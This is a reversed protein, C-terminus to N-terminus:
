EAPVSIYVNDLELVAASYLDTAVLKGLNEASTLATSKIATVTGDAKKTITGSVTKAELDLDLEVTFWEGVSGSLKTSVASDHAAAENLAYFVGANGRGYISFIINGNSDTVDFRSQRGKGSEVNTKWDFALKLKQQSTIDEAFAKVDNTEKGAQGKVLLRLVGDAAAVDGSVSPTFGWNDAPAAAFNEAVIYSNDITVTYEKTTVGDGALGTITVVQEAADANITIAGGEVAEGNYKVSYSAASNDNEAAVTLSSVANEMRASYETTEMDFADILESGGNTKISLASINANTPTKISVPIVVQSKIYKNATSGASVTVTVEGEAVPTITVETGNLAATALTEDASVAGTIEWGEPVAIAVAARDNLSTLEVEAPTATLEALVDNAAVHNVLINDIKAASNYRNTEYAINSFDKAEANDFPVSQRDFYVKSGDVSTLKIDATKTVYNMVATVTAWDEDGPFETLAIGNISYNNSSQNRSLKVAYKGVTKGASGTSDAFGIVMARAPENGTPQKMLVDAKVCVVGDAPTELLTGVVTTGNSSETPQMDLYTNDSESNYLATYRATVWVAWGPVAEGATGTEFDNTYVIDTCNHVVITYTKIVNNCEAKVTVNLAEEAAVAAQPTVTLTNGSISIGDVATELSWKVNAAHDFDATPNGSADKVDAIDLTIQANADAPVKVMTESPIITYDATGEVGLQEYFFAKLKMNDVLYFSTRADKSFITGDELLWGGFVNNVTMKDPEAEITIRDNKVAGSPATVTGRTSDYEIELTMEPLPATKLTSLKINEVAASEETSTTSFGIAAIQAPVIKEATIAGEIPVNVIGIGDVCIDLVAYDIDYTLVVDYKDGAKMSDIVIEGGMSVAGTSSNLTMSVGDSNAGGADSTFYIDTSGAKPEVTFEAIVKGGAVPENLALYGNGKTISVIGSNDTASGAWAATPLNESLYDYATHVGSYPEMRMTGDSYAGGWVFAKYSGGAPIELGNPTDDTVLMVDEIMKASMPELRNQRVSCLTGDENYTAAFGTIYSLDSHRVTRYSKLYDRGDVTQVESSTIDVTQPYEISVPPYPFLSHPPAVYQGDMKGETMMYESPQIASDTDAKTAYPALAPYQASLDKITNFLMENTMDAGFDNLHSADFKAKPNAATGEWLATHTYKNKPTGMTEYMSKTLSHLSVFPTNKSAAYQRAAEDYASTSYESLREIPGCLVFTANKETTANYYYDLNKLYSDTSSDNHGMQFLVIDGETMDKKGVDFYATNVTSLGGEGLNVVAIDDPLHKATAIGWGAYTNYGFYPLASGGDTVTSDGFVWAVRPKEIQQVEVANLMPNTGLVCINLMDDEYVPEAPNGGRNKWKVNHVAVTFEKTLSAGAKIEEEMLVFHRRESTLYIKSDKDSNGMTVKVKYYTNNDVKLAFRIPMNVDDTYVYDTYAGGAAGGNKINTKNEASQSYGDLVMPTNYSAESQGLFGYGIEDSYAADANVGIWSSDEAAEAGFDFKWSKLTSEGEAGATAPVALMSAAIAASVAIAPAKKLAKKM